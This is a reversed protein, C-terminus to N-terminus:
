RDAVVMSIDKGKLLVEQFHQELKERGRRKAGGELWFKEKVGEDSIARELDRLVETSGIYHDKRLGWQLQGKQLM